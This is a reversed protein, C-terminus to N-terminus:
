DIHSYPLKLIGEIQLNGIAIPDLTERLRDLM